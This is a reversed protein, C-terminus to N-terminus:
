NMVYVSRVDSWPKPGDSGIMRARFYYRTNPALGRVITKSLTTAAITRWNAENTLDTCMQFEYSVRKGAKHVLRVEGPNGTLIALLVAQVRTIRSRVEMGASQIVAEATDENQNAVSEVYSALQKLALDLDEEKKRMATTDSKSGSKGKVTTATELQNTIQTVTAMTPIPSPFNPNGTMLLTIIKSKDIKQFIPLGSIGLKVLFKM